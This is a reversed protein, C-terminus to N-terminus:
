ASGKRGAGDRTERLVVAGRAPVRVTGDATAGTLLDTGAGPGSADEAGHNILFLYSQGSPQRRRVAEVGAWGTPSVNAAEVFRPIWRDLAAPDPLTTLYWAQGRGYGHRTLGPAGALAADPYGSPNAAYRVEVDAGDPHTLETWVRGVGGDDLDVKGAPPLPHFEEVRVGLLDRLRDPRVHDNDDVVGSFPGVVLRGGASVYRHLNASGADDLLYLSPALVLRYTSLDATPHAFDATVGAHHLAAHWAKLEGVADLDASPHAPLGGAWLSSWDLLLAVEAPEVSSGAVEALAGLDHGLEVVERWVRTDTGAHPVMGSHFKEAGAVSARWQFFMAGDSGRAVHTLSNRRMQGPTKALNHPQWNVASTSHEMLLWPRGGALSRTLDAAFALDTVPDLEARLYHDTSVLDLERAWSWYDLDWFMGAMLNTTVPIDPTVRRLADREARYCDLLEDSAFRRFDLAQTPNGFTPTARPPIVQEWDTHRQSWFATGWAANLADLDDDYRRRLWSRFASASVDCYCRSVHCGYENGVHWLALAPHERYRHALQEALRVAADRYIPSSPCYAQRSGYSLRRGDADVPLTQPYTHSFWPPPSATATALDVKLDHAALLDVIEDLWGFEYRGEAPELWAWAFVGVTVLTVGAERMLAVDERWTSAPWQEPNYDGGYCLASLGPLLPM